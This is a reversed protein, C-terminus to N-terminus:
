SVVCCSTSARPNNLAAVQADGEAVQRRLAEQDRFIHEVVQQLDRDELPPAARAPVAEPVTSVVLFADVIPLAVPAGGATDVAMTAPQRNSEEVPSPRDTGIRDPLLQAPTSDRATVAQNAVVAPNAPAVAATLAPPTVAQQLRQANSLITLQQRLRNTFATDLGGIDLARQLCAAKTIDINNIRVTEGADLQMGINAWAYAHNADRALAALYCERKNFRQPAAGNLTVDVHENAALTTGLHRFAKANNADRALAALYCDRKQLSVARGNIRITVTEDPALANGLIAYCRAEKRADHGTIAEQLAVIKNHHRNFRLPQPSGSRAMGTTNRTATAGSALDTNSRVPTLHDVPTANHAPGAGRSLLDVM